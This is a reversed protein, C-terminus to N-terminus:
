FGRLPSKNKRLRVDFYFVGCKAPPIDNSFIKDYKKKEVIEIRMQKSQPYETVSVWVKIRDEAIGHNTLYYKIELGRYYSLSSWTFWFIPHDTTDISGCVICDTNTVLRLNTVLQNLLVTDKLILCSTCKSFRVKDTFLWSNVSGNTISTNDFNASFPPISVTDVNLSIMSAKKNHPKLTDAPATTKTADNNKIRVSTAKRCSSTALLIIVAFACVISTIKKM